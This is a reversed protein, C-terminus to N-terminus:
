QMRKIEGCAIKVGSNGSPQTKFDDADKHIVVTKGVIEEIEFSNILFNQWVYGKSSVLPVLDGAHTPHSCKSPNYHMGSNAFDDKANGTCSKGDHIHFGHFNNSCKKDDYPMNFLEVSVIVGYNTKYFNVKGKIQEYGNGGNITATANPVSWLKRVFNTSSNYFNEM